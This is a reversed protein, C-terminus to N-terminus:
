VAATENTRVWPMSLLRGHALENWRSVLGALRPGPYPKGLDEVEGTEPDLRSLTEELNEPRVVSQIVTEFIVERRLGKM